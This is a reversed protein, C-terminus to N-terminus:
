CHNYSLHCIVQEQLLSETMTKNGFCIHKILFHFKGIVTLKQKELSIPKVHKDKVRMRPLIYNASQDDRHYKYDRLAMCPGPCFPSSCMQERGM